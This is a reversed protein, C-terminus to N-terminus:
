IMVIKSLRLKLCNSKIYQKNSSTSEVANHPMFECFGLGGAGSREGSTVRKSVDAAADGYFPIDRNHHYQDGSQNVIQLMINASFPWPLGDDYEGKMLYVYVSVHTGAAVGEGNADVRICM